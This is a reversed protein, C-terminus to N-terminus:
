LAGMGDTQDGTENAAPLTLDDGETIVPETFEIITPPDIEDTM